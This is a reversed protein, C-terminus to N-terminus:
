FNNYNSKPMQEFNWGALLLMMKHLNDIIFTPQKRKTNQNDPNFWMTAMGFSLAPHIDETLSDGIFLIDGPPLGIRISCEKFFKLNPKECELEGPTFIDQMYPLLGSYHLRLEQMDRNANSACYIPYFRSLKRLVRRAGPMLVVTQCYFGMFVDKFEDIPLDLGDLVRLFNDLVTYLIDGHALQGQVHLRDVQAFISHYTLLVGEDVDCDFYDFTRLLTEELSAELDILTKDIDFILANYRM